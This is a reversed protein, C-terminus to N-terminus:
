VIAERAPLFLPAMRSNHAQVWWYALLHISATAACLKWCLLVLSLVLTMSPPFLVTFYQAYPVIVILLGHERYLLRVLVAGYGHVKMLLAGM